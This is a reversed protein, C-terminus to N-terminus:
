DSVDLKKKFAKERLWWILAAIWGLFMGVVTMQIVFWTGSVRISENLSPIGLNLMLYAIIGGLVTCLGSRIAWQKEKWWYFGITYSIGCGTIFLMISLLWDNLSPYGNPHTLPTKDKENEPSLDPSPTPQPTPSPEPTNSPEPLLTATPMVIEALGSQTTLILTASTIAEGSSATVAFIGEREVRYEITAFGNITKAEPLALILADGATKVTFKTLTGDPVINGNRDLIPGAQIDVAEGLRFLPVPTEEAGPEPTATNTTPTNSLNTQGQETLLALNIIQDPNPALQYKLDYSVAPLSFPLASRPRTEHMLVRSALDFSAKNPSFLGYYATLKSIETTDLYFPADYAFVIVMKDRLLNAHQSLMLQLAYSAPQDPNLDQINFVIWRARKIHEEIYQANTIDGDKLFGYLQNFTYANVRFDAVQGTGADGYLNLFTKKFDDLGLTTIRACEECPAVSRSDSFITIYDANGPGQTFITNLYEEKPALLTMAERAVELCLQNQSLSEDTLETSLFVSEHSFSGYLNLKNKLIRSVSEDVRQAFVSDEQYKQVFFAITRQISDAQDEYATAAFNDLYLMDNGALFATRAINPADFTIGNPDFFNRMSPSGLSDSVVLGGEARWTDLPATDFIQQLAVPDLSVPRTTSRVNGQLGQYRIHAVMVGDMYAHNDDASALAIFPALENQKLEDLSRQITSIELSPSRDVSGLGPFHTAIITMRNDSGAHLGSAFAKGMQGVWYPDSGFSNTGSFRSRNPDSTDLLDLKPGLFLNFGMNSLESGYVKGMESVLQPSWTAGLTMESPLDKLNALVSHSLDNENNQFLGVYLPIYSPADFDPDHIEPIEQSKQYAIEQLATILSKTSAVPDAEDFNRNKTSLVVGGIHYDRILTYIKSTESTDTGDFTILMLQGVKEHPSMQAIMDAIFKDLETGAQPELQAQTSLTPALLCLVLLCSLLVKLRMKSMGYRFPMVRTM